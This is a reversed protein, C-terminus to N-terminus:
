NTNNRRLENNATYLLFVSVPIWLILNYSFFLTLVMFTGYRGLSKKLEKMVFVFFITTPIVGINLALEIFSNDSFSSDVIIIAQHISPSLGTWILEPFRTILYGFEVIQILRKEAFTTQNLRNFLFDLRENYINSLIPGISFLFLAFIFTYFLIKRQKSLSTVFNYRFVLCTIMSIFVNLRSSSIIMGTLLCISYLINGKGKKLYSFFGLNLTTAVVNPGMFTVNAADQNNVRFLIYVLALVLPYLELIKQYIELKIIGKSLPKRFGYFLVTCAYVIVSFQSFEDQGYYLLGIASLSIIFIAAIHKVNENLKLFAISLIAGLYLPYNIIENNTDELIEVGGGIFYYLNTVFNSYIM